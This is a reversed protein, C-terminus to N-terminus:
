QVPSVQGPNEITAQLRASRQEEAEQAGTQAQLATILAVLTGSPANTNGAVAGRMIAAISASSGRAYYLALATIATARETDGSEGAHEAVIAEVAQELAQPDDAHDRVAAAVSEAVMATVIFQLGDVSLEVTGDDREVLTPQAQEQAHLTAVSLAITAITCLLVSNARSQRM